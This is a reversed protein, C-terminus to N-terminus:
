DLSTFMSYTNRPFGSLRRIADILREHSKGAHDVFSRWRNKKRPELRVLRTANYPQDVIGIRGYLTHNRVCEAVETLGNDLLWDVCCDISAQDLPKHDVADALQEIEPLFSPHRNGILGLAKAKLWKKSIGFRVNPRGPIIQFPVKCYVAAAIFQGNSVYTIPRRDLRFQNEVAHKLGYSNELLSKTPQFGGLWDEIMTCEVASELLRREFDAQQDAYEHYPMGNDSLGPLVKMVDRIDQQTM